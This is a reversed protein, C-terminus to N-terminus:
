NCNKLHEKEVKLLNWIGRRFIEISGTVLALLSTNGLYLAVTPSITLVWALRMIFNLVIVVYYNRRPEFTLYKRLLWNKSDLQLLDWDYKLDWFYAYLTSVLSSIIWIGLLNPYGLNYIYAIISTILALSFKIGNAMHLTMFYKGSEYGMRLTQLIKISFVTVVVIIATQFSSQDKCPNNHIVDFDLSTFYCITYALDRLPTVMSIWQDTMWLISFSVGTLPSLLSKILLKLAYLRGEYNFIPLPIVIFIALSGWVILVLYESRFGLSNKIINTILLLYVLFVIM